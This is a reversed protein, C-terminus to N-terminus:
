TFKGRLSLQLKACPRLYQIQKQAIARSLHVAPVERSQLVESPDVVQVSVMYENEKVKDIALGVAIALENLEMRNWCGTLPIMMIFLLSMTLVKKM